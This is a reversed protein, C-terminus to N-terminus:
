KGKAMKTLKLFARVAPNPIENLREELMEAQNGNELAKLFDESQEQLQQSEESFASKVGMFTSSVEELNLDNPTTDVSRDLNIVEDSQLSQVVYPSHTTAVFQLNPFANKLDGAVRRQWNPHLHQDLEDIMVVGQTDIVARERKNGNLVICRYALEAVMETFSIIGDSHLHIPLYESTYDEIEVMLWLETGVFDIKKIFPIATALTDWFIKKSEPYEKGVSLLAPYTTLWSDYGYVFSRMEKWSNYGEKFIQRGIRPSRNRAAGHLRSTGFFAIVPLDLDDSGQRMKDFKSKGMDRVKGVDEYSSTTRIKGEPIRRRWIIESSELRFSGTAEVIVPTQPSLFTGGNVYRIEDPDIGKSEADPIALLYTGCAVRLAHLITSKGKGNIGIIVTFHPNLEYRAEVVNRFNKLHLSNIKMSDPFSSGPNAGRHTYM